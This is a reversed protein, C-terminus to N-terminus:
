GCRSTASGPRRRGHGSTGGQHRGREGRIEGQRTEGGHQEVDGPAQDVVALDRVEDRPRGEVVPQHSLGIGLTFQGGTVMSTTMAQEAMVMPHRPYTPVVSTGFRFNPVHQAVAGIINMAETNQVLQPLWYSAFGADAVAKVDAITGALGSRGSVGGFIAIDM